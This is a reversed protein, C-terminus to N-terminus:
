DACEDSLREITVKQCNLDLMWGMVMEADHQGYVEIHKDLFCVEFREGDTKNGIISQTSLPETSGLCLLAYCLDTASQKDCLSIRCDGKRLVYM